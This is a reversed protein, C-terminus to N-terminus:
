VHIGENSPLYYVNILNCNQIALIVQHEIQQNPNEM